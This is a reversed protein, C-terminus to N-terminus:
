PRAAKEFKVPWEIAAIEPHKIGSQAWNNAAHVCGDVPKLKCYRQLWLVAQDPRHNLAEAVALYFIAYGDPFAETLHERDLLEAESLRSTTAARVMGLHSSLHSVVLADPTTWPETQVGARELKLSRHALEIPFYDAIILGLLATASLYLAIVMARPVRFWSSVDGGIRVELAGLLWGLPLLLYAYHLPYELMSHNFILVVLMMLIAQDPRKVALFRRVLWGVVVVCLAGGLPIGCWVILDVFLNHASSFLPFGSTRLDLARLEAVATQNWGYGAWPAARIADLCLSWVEWRQVASGPNFV